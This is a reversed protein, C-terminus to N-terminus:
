WQSEGVENVAKIRIQYKFGKRLKEITYDNAHVLLHAPPEYKKVEEKKRKDKKGSMAILLDEFEQKSMRRSKKRTKAQLEKEKDASMSQEESLAALSARRSKKGM